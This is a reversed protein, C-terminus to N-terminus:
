SALPWNRIRLAAELYKPNPWEPKERPMQIAKGVIGRLQDDGHAKQEQALREIEAENVLIRYDTGIAILVRDMARHHVPCLCLGNSTEDTSQPDYVPISHAADVLKLQM